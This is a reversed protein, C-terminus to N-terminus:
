IQNEKNAINGEYGYASIILKQPYNESIKNHGQKYLYTSLYSVKDFIM